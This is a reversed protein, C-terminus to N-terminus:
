STEIAKPSIPNAKGTIIANLLDQYQERSADLLAERAEEKNGPETIFGLLFDILKEYYDMDIGQEHLKDLFDRAKIVRRLFGPDQDTALEFVIETM